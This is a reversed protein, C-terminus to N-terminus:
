KSDQYVVECSHIFKKTTTIKWCRMTKNWSKNEIFVEWTAQLIKKLRFNNDFCAVILYEFKKPDPTPDGPANLGWFSGTLNGSTAKISYREGKRSLADVNQTGTPAPQLNPLNPTKGYHDIVLFEALDGLLNKSRIVGRIKLHIIIESYAAILDKTELKDIEM